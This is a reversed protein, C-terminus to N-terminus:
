DRQKEKRNFYRLFSGFSKKLRHLSNKDVLRYVKKVKRKKSM